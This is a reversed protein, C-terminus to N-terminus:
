AAEAEAEVRPRKDNDKDEDRRARKGRKAVGDAQLKWKRVTAILTNRPQVARFTDVGGSAFVEAGMLAFTEETESARAAAHVYGFAFTKTHGDVDMRALLTTVKIIPVRAPGSGARTHPDPVSITKAGRARMLLELAARQRADVQAPLTIFKAASPRSADMMILEEARASPKVVTLPPQVHSILLLQEVATAVDPSALLPELGRAHAHAHADTVTTKPPLVPTLAPTSGPEEAAPVPVPVPVPAPITVVIRM